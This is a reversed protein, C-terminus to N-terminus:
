KRDDNKRLKFSWIGGILILLILNRILSPVHLEKAVVGLIMVIIFALFKLIVLFTNNM